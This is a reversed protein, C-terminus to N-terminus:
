SYEMDDKLTDDTATERQELDDDQAKPMEDMLISEVETLINQLSSLSTTHRLNSIDSSPLNSRSGLHFTLYTKSEDIVVLSCEDAL